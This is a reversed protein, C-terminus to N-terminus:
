TPSRLNREEIVNVVDVISRSATSGGKRAVPPSLCIAGSSTPFPGDHVHRIPYRSTKGSHSHSIGHAEKHFTMITFNRCVEYPRKELVPPLGPSVDFTQDLRNHM